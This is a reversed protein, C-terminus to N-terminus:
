ILPGAQLAVPVAVGEQALAAAVRAAGNRSCRYFASRSRHWSIRDRCMQRVSLGALTTVRLMLATCEPSRRGLVAVARAAIFALETGEGFRPEIAFALRLGRLVLAATWVARQAPKASDGM